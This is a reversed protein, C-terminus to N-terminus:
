DLPKWLRDHPHRYHVHTFPRVVAYLAVAVVSVVFVLVVVESIMELRRQNRRDITSGIVLRAM